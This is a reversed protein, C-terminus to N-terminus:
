DDSAMYRAFRYSTQEFKLARFFNHANSIEIDSMVEIRSCGAKRLAACAENVLASGVGHRRQGKDVLLLTIRGLLGHQLTQISTWCCCGILEGKEAICAGGGAKRLKELNRAIGLEDAKGAALQRLLASLEAADSSKAMRIELAAPAPKAPADTQRDYRRATSATIKSSRRTAPKASKDSARSVPRSGAAPASATEAPGLARARDTAGRRRRIVPEDDQEEDQARAKSPHPSRAPTAEASAKWTSTAGKRLYAEINQASATLGKESVGLLAKGEADTLGFKGYDGSGPKRKRSKLLKLGRHEAMDRLKQDIPEDTM